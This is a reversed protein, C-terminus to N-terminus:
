GVRVYGGEMGLQWTDGVLVWIRFVYEDRDRVEYEYRVRGPVEFRLTDGQWHGAVVAGGQAAQSDFWQM